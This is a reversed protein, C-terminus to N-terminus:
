SVTLKLDFVFKYIFSNCTDLHFFTVAPVNWSLMYRKGGSQFKHTLMWAELEDTNRFTFFPPTFLALYTACVFM